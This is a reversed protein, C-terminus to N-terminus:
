FDEIPEVLERRDEDFESAEEMEEDVEENEVPTALIEAAVFRIDIMAFQGVVALELTVGAPLAWEVAAELPGELTVSPTGLRRLPGVM